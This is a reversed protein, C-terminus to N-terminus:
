ARERTNPTTLLPRLVALVQSFQKFNAQTSAYKLTRGVPGAKETRQTIGRDKGTVDPLFSEGGISKLALIATAKQIAQPVETDKIAWGSLDYVDTRPWALAQDQTKRYGKWRSAYAMDLYRTAERIALQKASSTASTWSSPAGYDDHYQDAFAETTYANATTLGTGDEVVFTAVM